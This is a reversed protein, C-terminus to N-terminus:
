QQGGFEDYNGAVGGLVLDRESDMEDVEGIGAILLNTTYDEMGGVDFPDDDDEKNQPIM